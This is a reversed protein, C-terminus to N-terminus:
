LVPVLVMADAVADPAICESPPTWPLRMALTSVAAATVIIVLRLWLNSRYRMSNIRSSPVTVMTWESLSRACLGAIGLYHFRLTEGEVVLETEQLHIPNRRCAFRLRRGSLAPWFPRIFRIQRPGLKM